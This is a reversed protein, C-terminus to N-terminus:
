SPWRQQGDDHPRRGSPRTSVRRPSRNSAPASCSSTPDRRPRRHASRPRVSLRGRLPTSSTPPSRRQSSRAEGRCRSSCSGSRGCPPTANALWVPTPEGISSSPAADLNRALRESHRRGANTPWGIMKGSASGRGPRRGPPDPSALAAPRRNRLTTRHVDRHRPAIRGRGSLGVLIRTNRRNKAVARRSRSTGSRRPTLVAPRAKVVAARREQGCRGPRRRHQGPM